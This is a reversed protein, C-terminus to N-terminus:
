SSYRFRRWWFLGIALPWLAYFIWAAGTPNAPLPHGSYENGGLNSPAPIQALKYLTDLVIPETTSRSMVKRGDLEYWVEGYHDTASSFLGTRGQAAYGIDVRPLIRLLKSLVSRDLDMLRPDEAALYITVRLPQRI